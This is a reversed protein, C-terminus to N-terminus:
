IFHCFEHSVNCMAKTHRVSDDGVQACSESARGELIKTLVVGDIDIVGQDGVRPAVALDFSGVTHDKPSELIV